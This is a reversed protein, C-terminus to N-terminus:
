TGWILNFGHASHVIILIYLSISFSTHIYRNLHPKAYRNLSPKTRRMIGFRHIVGTIIILPIIIFLIVGTGLDPFFRIPRSVQQAFHISILLFSFLNGFIHIKLLLSLARIPKRKLVYFVPTFLFVFLSGIIGLWHTFRFPGVFFNLEFFGFNVLFSLVLTIGLLVLTLCFQLYMQRNLYSEGL